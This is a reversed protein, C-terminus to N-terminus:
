SSSAPPLTGRIRYDYNAHLHDLLQIRDVSATVITLNRTESVGDDAHRRLVLLNMEIM